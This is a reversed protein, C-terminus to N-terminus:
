SLSMCEISALIESPNDTADHIREPPDYLSAGSEM